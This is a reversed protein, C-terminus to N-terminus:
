CGKKWSDFCNGTFTSINQEFVMNKNKGTIKHPANTWKEVGPTEM